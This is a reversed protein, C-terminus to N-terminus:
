SCHYTGLALMEFAWGAGEDSIAEVPRLGAPPSPKLRTSATLSEARVGAGWVMPELVPACGEILDSREADVSHALGRYGPYLSDGPISNMTPPLIGGISTTAEAISYHM